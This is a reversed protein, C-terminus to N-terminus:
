VFRIRKDIIVYIIDVVLNILVLGLAAILIITRVVPWDRVALASVALRGIGPWAFVTETVIAGGLLAGIQLGMVTVVPILANKFAHKVVVTKQSLGKARATRVYDENLIEITSIRAVRTIMAFVFLVLSCMPLILYEIGGYGSTPFWGWRVAFVSILLLGVWFAPVSQGILAVGLVGRDLLGGRRVAALVGLPIGIGFAVILSSGILLITAPLAELVMDVAPRQARISDGFDGQVADTVFSWYQEPLPRDFGLRERLAEVDEVRAREGLLIRAPDGPVIHVMLFVILSVLFM